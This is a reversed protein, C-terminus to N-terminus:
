GKRGEQVEDSRFDCSPIQVTSQLSKPAMGHGAWAAPSTEGRKHQHRQSVHRHWHAAVPSCPFYTSRLSFSFFVGSYQQTDQSIAPLLQVCNKFQNSLKRIFWPNSYKQKRDSLQLHPLSFACSFFNALVSIQDNYIQNNKRQIVKQKPAPNKQDTSTKQFRNM